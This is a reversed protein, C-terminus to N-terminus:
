LEVGLFVHLAIYQLWAMVMVMVMEWLIFLLSVEVNAVASAMKKKKYLHDGDNGLFWVEDNNKWGHRM